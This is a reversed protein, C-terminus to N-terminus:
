IHWLASEFSVWEVTRTFVIHIFYFCFQIFYFYYYIKLIVFCVNIDFIEGIGNLYADWQKMELADFSM